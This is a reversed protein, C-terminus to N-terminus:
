LYALHLSIKNILKNIAIDVKLGTPELDESPILTHAHTHTHTSDVRHMGVRILGNRAIGASYVLVRM